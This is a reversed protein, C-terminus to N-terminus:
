RFNEVMMIDSGGRDMQCYLLSRGDPSVALGPLYREAGRSLRAVESIQKNAFSYFELLAGASTATAFYIGLETVRWYRWLGAQHHGTVFEEKGGSAPMRWLGPIARGKTYYLSKGDFSEFGEFGGQETVQTPQGGAAPMKWIQMTGGRNSSFYIWRGDRSWSPAVDEAPDTTLRTPQRGDASILYIDPNGDAGPACSRSDFAIWRGDPSWRPTGTVYPGCSHLLRPKSGDSECVWIANNGSRGSTFAIMRGDPSYDPGHDGFTSAILETQSKAKGAADLEVRWINIDDLTQTYALRRGLPSIAPSLVDAGVTDVREPTGGTIAVRWLHRSSGGRRSDFVIERSDPTWALGNITMNDFTLRKPEGGALPMVYLDDTSWRPSRAFALWKGDPSFAPNYDGIVGAPPSTIKRLEGTEISLLFVSLPESASNKDPIALYKGDPSYYHSAGDSPVQYPFIKALKREAGGLAPILYFESSDASQRLFSIYRGDPSWVPNIDEAPNITLRLPTEADILKVYIDQNDGQPGNWVFAIQNGDPSFAVQTERGQYSTLPIANLASKLANTAPRFNWQWVGFGVLLGVSLLAALWGWRSAGPRPRMSGERNPAPSPSAPELSENLEGETTEREQGTGNAARPGITASDEQWVERVKAVFRYGRRPITEIYHHDVDEGLVKRLISVKKALSVEEVFTDPWVKKILDEKDLIHGGSEVLALLTEFAKPTLPM